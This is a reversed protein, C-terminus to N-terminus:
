PKGKLLDGRLSKARSDFYPSYIEAPKSSRRYSNNGNLYNGNGTRWIWPGGSCGGTMDCGIGVPKVGPVNGNYAYSAATSIMRRGTFPSAAPYGIALWHQFRGWNWAFGLWGVRQSIKKGSVPHLIAGGMDDSLGGPNGSNYWKSKTLLRSAPWQGFPASGDKYAPVFVVNTSWGDTRGNGAHVCHGATWIAYNGISAASCVYSRGYQKFFLKGVTIYPFRSYSCFVEHRSFPPPYNYGGSTATPSTDDDAEDALPLGGTEFGEEGTVSEPSDSIGATSREMEAISEDTVEPISIPEADLMEATTWLEESATELERTPSQINEDGVPANGTAEAPEHGENLDNPM